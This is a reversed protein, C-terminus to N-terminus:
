FSFGDDVKIGLSDVTGANVELAYEVYGFGPRYYKTEEGEKAIPANKEFGSVKNNTIWIIDLPFLMGRMHFYPSYSTGFDFLMGENASLSARGSLGIARSIDDSAVDVKFKHTGISIIKQGSALQGPVSQDSSNINLRMVVLSYFSFFLTAGVAIATLLNLGKVVATKTEITPM